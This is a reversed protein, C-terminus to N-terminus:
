SFLAFFFPPLPEGVFCFSFHNRLLARRTWIPTPPAPTGSITNSGCCACPSRTKNLLLDAMVFAPKCFWVFAVDPDVSFPPSLVGLGDDARPCGLTKAGTSLFHPLLGSSLPPPLTYSLSTGGYTSRWDDEDFVPLPPVHLM